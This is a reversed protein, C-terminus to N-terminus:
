RIHAARNPDHSSPPSTTTSCSSRPPRHAAETGNAWPWASMLRKLAPCRQHRRDDRRDRGAPARSSSCTSRSPGRSSCTPAAVIEDLQELTAADLDEGTAIRDTGATTHPLRPRRRHRASPHDGTIMIVRAPAGASPSRRRSVKVSPIASAILGLTSAAEDGRATPRGDPLVGAAVIVRQRRRRVGRERRACGSPRNAACSRRDRRACRPPSRYTGDDLLWMRSTSPSPDFPHDVVLNGAVRSAMGHRAHEVIAVDLPRVTRARLRADRRLVSREDDGHRRCGHRSGRRRAETLTGTKDVCIVTTSGLTEVGPLRRVLAKERALRRAGLALYLAYVLPFEEPIAAIALSVGAIVADGWGRGHLLEAAMVAVCFVAAVAGLLRV